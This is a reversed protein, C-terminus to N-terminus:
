RQCFREIIKDIQDFVKKMGLSNCHYGDVYLAPDGESLPDITILWEKYKECISDIVYNYDEINDNIYKNKILTEKAVHCIKVIIMQKVGNNLFKQVISDYCMMFDGKDTYVTDRTRSFVVKIIKWFFSELKLLKFVKILLNWVFKRDNIYRPSCDCIGLQFIVIDPEYYKYYTEFQHLAENILVGRKFYDIFEYEPYKVKLSYFWTDEYLVGERPLGLSDGICLIKKM